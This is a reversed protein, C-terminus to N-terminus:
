RSGPESTAAAHVPLTALSKGTVFKLQIISIDTPAGPAPNKGSANFSFSFRKVDILSGAVIVLKLSGAGVGSLGEFFTGTSTSTVPAVTRGAGNVSDLLAVNSPLRFVQVLPNPNTFSKAVFLLEGAGRVDVVLDYDSKSLGFYTFLKGNTIPLTKLRQNTGEAEHVAIAGTVTVTKYIPTGAHAIPAFALAALSVLLRALRRLAGGRSKRDRRLCLHRSTPKVSNM